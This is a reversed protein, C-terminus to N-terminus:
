LSARGSAEAQGQGEVAHYSYRFTVPFSVDTDVSVCTVAKCDGTPSSSDQGAMCAQLKRRNLVSLRSSFDDAPYSLFRSYVSRNM